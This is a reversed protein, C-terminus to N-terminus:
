TAPFLSEWEKSVLIRDLKEMTPHILNNSWTYIGGSTHLDRLEYLHIISNFTASFRKPHFNKSKEFSFRIINFDGGSIYPEKSKACCSALEALFAEKNEEQPAGYVNMLNWKCELKKDWITHQLIFNGQVRSGIDFSDVKIGTLGGRARGKAPIWDWMYSHSPDILRLCKDSFVQMITEQFCVFDFKMEDV